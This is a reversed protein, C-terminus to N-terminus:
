KKKMGNILLLADIVLIRFNWFGLNAVDDRYFTCKKVSILYRNAM